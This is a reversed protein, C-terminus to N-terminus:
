GAARLWAAPDLKHLRALAGRLRWWFALGVVLGSVLDFLFHQKTTLVSVCLLLWEGWLLCLLPMALTNQRHDRRTWRTMMMVLLLSHVIHLSPWANWPTDSAHVFAFLSAELDSPPTSQWHSTLQDRLDIEAPMLLFVAVCGWTALSLVQLGVALEARGRDNRPAVLIAAPFLLYFAVYPIITWNVAPISADFATGPDWVTDLFTAALANSIFYPAAVTLLGVSFVFAPFAWGHLSTRRPWARLWIFRWPQVAPLPTRTNM